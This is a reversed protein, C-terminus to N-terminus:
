DPSFPSPVIQCDNETIKRKKTQTMEERECPSKVRFRFCAGILDSIETRRECNMCMDSNRVAGHSRNLVHLMLKECGSLLLYLFFDSVQCTWKVPTVQLMHKDTKREKREEVGSLLGHLNGEWTRHTM